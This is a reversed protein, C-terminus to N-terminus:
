LNQFNVVNLLVVGNLTFLNVSEDIIEKVQLNIKLKLSNYIYISLKKWIYKNNNKYIFSMEYNIQSNIM